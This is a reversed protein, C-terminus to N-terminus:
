GAMDPPPADRAPRSAAPQLIMSRVIAEAEGFTQVVHHAGAERLRDAHGERIHSAALLGIVTMGAAIGARVGGASDEIVVCNAPEVALRQAAHLYIDPAPKGHAVLDASYVHEGFVDAIGLTDLCVALRNASSSSAIARPLRPFADLFKHAGEVFRLELRFRALTRQQFSDYFDEPLDRGVASAISAVIENVRMGMYIRIADDATTPVGLESVIDALVTNALVESDAIVGDFDFIIAEKM